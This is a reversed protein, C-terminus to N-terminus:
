SSTQRDDDELGWDTHRTIGCITVALGARNCTRVADHWVRASGAQLYGIRRGDTDLAVAWGDFSNLPEPVMEVVVRQGDRFRGL